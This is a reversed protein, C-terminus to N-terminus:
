KFNEAKKNCSYYGKLLNKYMHKPQLMLLLAVLFWLCAPTNCLLWQIEFEAGQSTIILHSSIVHM